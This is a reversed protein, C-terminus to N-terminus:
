GAEGVLELHDLFENVPSRGKWMVMCTGWIEMQSNADQTIETIIGVWDEPNYPVEHKGIIKEIDQASKLTVLDGPKFKM